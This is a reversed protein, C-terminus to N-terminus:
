VFGAIPRLNAFPCIEIVCLIPFLKNFLLTGAGGRIDLYHFLLAAQPVGPVSVFANRSGSFPMFVVAFSTIFERSPPVSLMRFQHFFPVRFPLSLIGLVYLLL